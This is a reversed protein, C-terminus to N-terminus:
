NQTNQCETDEEYEYYAEEGEFLMYGEGEVYGYYGDDTFYGKLM